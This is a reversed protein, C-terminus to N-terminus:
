YGPNQKLNPNTDVAKQPIPFILKTAASKTPRQDVPDNFTGFRIQDQRRWGEYYLERGREALMSASTLNALVSAGRTARLNNVIQLASQGSPDSGGRLIAEAKMLLVDGYRLFVYDNDTQREDVDKINGTADPKPAYKVVRIGLLDDSATLSVNKTFVMPASRGQLPKGAGDFQQGILFGTRLGTVDTLGPLAGGIRSDAPEFSDYFDALTTFGNWGNTAQNYHTGMRWTFRPNARVDGPINKVSFILESSGTNNWSFSEFYKGIPQLSFKGSSIVKNSFEIVKDMDAKAFNLPGGPTASSYVAKNLYIKALLAQAAQKTVKDAGTNATLNAEAFTLDAICQDVAQSRTLVKPNADLPDTLERSPVQGYLDLIFFMFWAKIFSAEAKVQVNDGAFAIAQTARFQGTNLRDWASNVEGHTPTWTHLHLQRWVGGDDWDTGRTPGMMEDTPHEMMAYVGGQNDWSNLADYAGQLYAAPPIIKAAEEDTAASITGYTQDDLKSCSVTGLMAIGMALSLLKINKTEM